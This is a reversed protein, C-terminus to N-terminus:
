TRFNHIFNKLSHIVRNRYLVSVAFSLIFFRSLLTPDNIWKGNEIDNWILKGEENIIAAKDCTRFDEIKNKNLIAGHSQYKLSQEDFRRDFLSYNIFKVIGKRSSESTM